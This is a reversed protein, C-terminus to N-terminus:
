GRRTSDIVTMDKFRAPVAEISYLTSQVPQGKRSGHASMAMSTPGGIELLSKWLETSAFLIDAGVLIPGLKGDVIERMYSRYSGGTRSQFDASISGGLFAIGKRTNKIMEEFTTAESGPEMRLNPTHQMPFDLAEPAVACGHSRVPRQRSKYWPALWSTQERTTQYDVLVGKEIIPFTEPEVGEDDWKVTALGKQVSRNATVTFLPLGLVTGLHDEPDPGLYSTGGANAEMGMARDLQTASGLTEAILSGVVSAPMVMEYRGVEIPKWPLFLNAEAEEVLNPIQERIKADLFLEWGAGAYSIGRVNASTMNAKQDAGMARVVLRIGGGAVYTTQSFLAGESTATTREQRTFNPTDPFGFSYVREPVNRPLRGELSRFFDRKEELSIKFPDIRIPTSWEGTAVPYTGIDIHRPFVSANIRAQSVADRALNEAEDMEWYTSAAFGWAGDVLARVGITLREIDAGIDVSVYQTVTRTVRAEAYRAGARKAADVAHLVLQEMRKRDAVHAMDGAGTMREAAFWRTLADAKRPIGSALAIAATSISTNLFDRRRWVSGNALPYRTSMATFKGM